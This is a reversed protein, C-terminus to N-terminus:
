SPDGSPAAAAITSWARFANSLLAVTFVNRMMVATPAAAKPV